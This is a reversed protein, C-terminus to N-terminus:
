VCRGTMLWVLLGSVQELSLPWCTVVNCGHHVVLLGGHVRLRGRHKANRYSACRGGMLALRQAVRWPVPVGETFARRLRTRAAADTLGLRQRAREVAHYKVVVRM